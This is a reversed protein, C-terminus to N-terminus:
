PTPCAAKVFDVVINFAAPQRLHIVTSSNNTLDDHWTAVGSDFIVAITCVGRRHAEITDRVTRQASREDFKSNNIERKEAPRITTSASWRRTEVGDAEAAPEAPRVVHGNIIGLKGNRKAYAALAPPLTAGPQL